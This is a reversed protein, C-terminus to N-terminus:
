WPYSPGCPISHPVASEARLVVCVPAAALPNGGRRSGLGPHPEIFVVRAQRCARAELGFHGCNAGCDVFTGGTPVFERIAWGLQPELDGDLWFLTQQLPIRLDLGLWLGDRVQIRQRADLGIQLLRRLVPHGVRFGGDRYRHYFRRIARVWRTEVASPELSRTEAHPM